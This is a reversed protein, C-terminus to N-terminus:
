PKLGADWNLVVTIPAAPAATTEPPLVNILFRQGDATVDYRTVNNPTGGGWIPAAFLAKPVGPTFAPTAAVEVAMLTSDASIYFLERGDRRWRPQSGGGQSVMWKGGAAAPFPQVYVENRGSANSTYAVFRIDPSFRAQSVNFDTQLYLTPKRGEVKSSTLDAQGQPLGAPEPRGSSTPPGVTSVTSGSSASSTSPRDDGTLPLVWLQSRGGAPVAAYLLFRGDLSWDYASKADSSKLLVEDKGAGNSVKQYLNYNGDRDTSWAIRSGDPSWVAMWDQAPDFTLRTSTNRAFEHVWLDLSPQSGRGAVAVRSDLSMAVRTGDPSLAATNYLGPKEVPGLPKGTRDFWTLQRAGVNGTGTQYVLVGTESASFDGVVYNSQTQIQEAIPVADGALALREVDFAQAMLTTERLYLLHGQAYVVNSSDSADLVRTRETSDLSGVYVPGGAADVGYLFHRGDPLFTPRLHRVDGSALTTSATPV